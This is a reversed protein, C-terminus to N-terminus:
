GLRDTFDSVLFFERSKEYLIYYLVYNIYYQINYITYRIDYITYRIDYITYRIDNTLLSVSYGISSVRYEVRRGQAHRIAPTVYPPRGASNGTSNDPYGWHNDPDSVCSVSRQINFISPLFDTYNTCVETISEKM